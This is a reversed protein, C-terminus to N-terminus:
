RCVSRGLRVSDNDDDCQDRLEWGEPHLEAVLDDFGGEPDIHYVRPELWAAAPIGDLYDVSLLVREDGRLGYVELRMPGTVPKEALNGPQVAYRLSGEDCHVECADVFRVAPDAGSAPTHPTPAARFTNTTQWGVRPETPLTCGPDLNTGDGYWQYWCDPGPAWDEGSYVM